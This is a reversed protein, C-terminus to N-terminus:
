TNSDDNLEVKQNKEDLFLHQGRILGKALQAAWKYVISEAETAARTETSIVLPTRAEDM